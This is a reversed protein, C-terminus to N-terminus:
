LRKTSVHHPHLRRLLEEGAEMVDTWLRPPSLWCASSPLADTGGHILAFVCLFTLMQKVNLYGSLQRKQRNKSNLLYTLQLWLEFKRSKQATQCSLFPASGSDDSALKQGYCWLTKILRTSCYVVSLRLMCSSPWNANSDFVANSFFIVRSLM